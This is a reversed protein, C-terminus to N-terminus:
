QPERFTYNIVGSSNSPQGAILAPTFRARKAADLAAARLSKPGSVAVAESVRGATDISVRVSVTGTTRLLRAPEPYVPKPM